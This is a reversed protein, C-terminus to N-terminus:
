PSVRIKSLFVRTDLPFGDDALLRLRQGSEPLYLGVEIDYVGPPATEGITLDHPDEVVQGPQWTFTPALGKAPVGDGIAWVETGQGLVHAFVTYNEEMFALAEWYLTLRLTEGPRGTRRDFIYGVLAIRNGFNLRVPNPLTGERPRVTVTSFRVNDSGTSTPLRRWTAYDYLGVELRATSPTYTTLPLALRYSDAIVEGPTWRSTPYNGKGPYSDRQAVIIDNGDLLHVFVSYDNTTKAVAHWYLTVFLDEGPRVEFTSVDYGLLAIQDDFLVTLQQPVAQRDAESLPAPRAYAPASYALPCIVAVALLVSAGVGVTYRSKDEPVFASWGLTVLLAIAPMGPFLLRGTNGWTSLQMWRVVIALALVFWIWILAVAIWQRQNWTRRRIQRAFL